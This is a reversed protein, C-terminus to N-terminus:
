WSSEMSTALAPQPQENGSAQAEEWVDSGHGERCVGM